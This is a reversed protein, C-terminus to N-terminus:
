LIIPEGNKIRQIAAALQGMKAELQVPTTIVPMYETTNSRPLFRAIQRLKDLGHTQLLRKAAKRQPMRSFLVKYNPNVEKFLNIVESVEKEDVGSEEPPTNNKTYERNTSETYKRYYDDGKTEVLRGRKASSSTVKQCSQDHQNTEALLEAIRSFNVYFYNKAPIGRKVITLVGIESLRKKVTLQEKKTLGTEEEWEEITKYFAGDENKTRKAWYIAQSLFLAGTIGVGLQVFDRNFAIPRDPIWVEKIEM